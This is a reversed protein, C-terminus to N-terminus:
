NRPRRLHRRRRRGAGRRDTTRPKANRSRRRPAGRGHGDGATDWARRPGDSRLKAIRGPRPLNESEAMGRQPRLQYGFTENSFRPGRRRADASGQATRPTPWTPRVSRSADVQQSKGVWDSPWEFAPSAVKLPTVGARHASFKTR